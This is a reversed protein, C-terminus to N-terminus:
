NATKKYLDQIEKDSKNPFIERWYALDSKSMTISNDKSGKPVTTRLHNKSERLAQKKTAEAVNARIGDPNAAAYAEKASLGADRFRAFKMLIEHPLKRVDDYQKTEPYALHLEAIDKRAKEEFALRRAIEQAAAKEEKATQENAYEEPDKGEAEAAVAMLGELVDETEVGMKKLTEKGQNEIKRLRAELQAIRTDKPDPTDDAAGEAAGTNEADTDSKESEEEDDEEEGGSSEDDDADGEEESPEEEEFDATLYDDEGEDPFVDPIIINGDEDYDFEDDIESEEEDADLNEDLVDIEDDLKAAENEM